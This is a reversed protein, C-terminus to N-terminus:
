DLDFAQDLSAEYHRADIELIQYVQPEFPEYHHFNLLEHAFHSVLHVAAVVEQHIIRSDLPAHHYLAAETIPFSFNWWNLLYAGAEMHNTNYKEGEIVYLEKGGEEVQDILRVYATGFAHLMFVIGLNHLLAAPIVNEPVEKKLHKQYLQIFLRHSLAGHRWHMDLRAATKKNGPMAELVATTSILHKLNKIGLYTSAKHIDGTRAGFYASNALRLVKSAIAQDEEIAKAIDALSAEQRILQMIHLYSQPITPLQVVDNALLRLEPNDLAEETKFLAKITGLLQDNNWPKFLYYRVVNQELAKFVAKEESYGSLMLRITRPHLEKVKTLFAVGDMGPMRMDSMVLDISHQNLVSLGEEGSFAAYVQYDTEMFMRRLASIVQREDDVILISQSMSECEWQVNKMQVRNMFMISSHM